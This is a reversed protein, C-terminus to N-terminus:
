SLLERRPSRLTQWFGRGVDFLRSSVRSSRTQQWILFVTSGPQYQWRLVASGRLSRFNLDRNRLTYDISGDGEFDIVHVGTDDVCTRGGGRVTGGDSAVARGEGFVDSDFSEPATLHEYTQYSM